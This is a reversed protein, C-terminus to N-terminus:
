QIIEVQKENNLPVIEVSKENSIPTIEVTNGNDLPFTEDDSENDDYVLEVYNEDSYAVTEVVNENDTTTIEVANGNDTSTNGNDTSTNENEAPAAEAIKDTNIFLSYDSFGKKQYIYIEYTEGANLNKVKVGEGNKCSSDSGVIEGLYNEMYIGVSCDEYIENLMFSYDGSVPVTFVYVNCQDEYQISDKVYMYESIDLKEKPSWITLIYGTYEKAQYIQIYYTEGAKLEKAEVGNGNKCYGDSAVPKGLHDEVFIAVATGEYMESLEFRYLGDVPATFYYNNCQDKYSTSDSYSSYGTLDVTEKPLGINLEYGTLGKNQEVKVTYIKGAELEGTIGTDSSCRYDSAIDEGMEDCISLGVRADYYMEGVEVRCPGNCPAEISYVDTQGEYALNGSYSIIDAARGTGGNVSLDAIELVSLEEKESAASAKSSGEANAEMSGEVTADIAAEDSAAVEGHGNRTRIDKIYVVVVAIGIMVAIAIMIMEKVIRSEYTGQGADYGYM